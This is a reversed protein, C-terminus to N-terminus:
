LGSRSFLKEVSLTQGKGWKITFTAKCSTNSCNDWTIKYLYNKDFNLYTEFNTEGIPPNSWFDLNDKIDATKKETLLQSLEVAKKRELALTKVKATSVVLVVVGTLVLIVVGISFVMDILSQGSKNQKASNNNM